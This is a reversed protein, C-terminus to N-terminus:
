GLMQGILRHFQHVNQERAPSYRGRDYFRSRVGRQVAEVVVEDEREVRDLEAGAGEALKSADWVFPLFSVKTLSPGLPKLVNVSLGWPYFNLMLNPFVWYYYASIHSGHDPSTAPLDFTGSPQKSQALQLNGWPYAHTTYHGYDLTENLGAHIFPIHFGELYNDVYLAWHAKVLYDRARTPEFVFEHLPLWGLREIVPALFDELPAAPAVSAFLFKGWVGWPVAPLHDKDCPFGDADEFEPMFQFRGDLGFRRGHYRCRLYRENGGTEAVTMGRHTCVNSMVHLRDDMDRTAVMPEDLCGELLTFPFVTGPARLGDLDGVWQWSRAFIREKAAEFIEPDTYFASPITWARQIAPDVHLSM